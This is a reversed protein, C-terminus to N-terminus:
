SLWSERRSQAEALLEAVAQRTARETAPLVTTWHARDASPKTVLLYRGRTTDILALVRRARRRSPGSGHAMGIQAVGLPQALGGGVNAADSATCGLRRFGSALVEAGPRQSTGTAAFLDDLAEAPVAVSGRGVVDPAGIVDLVAAGLSDSPIASLTVEGFEQRHVALVATSGSAAALGRVLPAGGGLRLDLELNPAALVRLAAAVHPAPETGAWLGQTRLRDVETDLRRDREVFTTGHRHLQLVLPFDGLGLRNWCLDFGVTSLTFEGPM